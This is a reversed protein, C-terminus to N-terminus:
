VCVLVIIFRDINSRPNTKRRELNRYTYSTMHMKTTEVLVKPLFQKQFSNKFCKGNQKRQIKRKQIVQQFFEFERRSIWCILTSFKIPKTYKTYIVFFSHKVEWKSEQHRNSIYQISLRLGNCRSPLVFNTWKM